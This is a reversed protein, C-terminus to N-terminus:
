TTKPMWPYEKVYAELCTYWHRPTFGPILSNVLVESTPRPADYEKEFFSSLVGHVKVDCRLLQIFKKAIDFRSASGVCSIHYTGLMKRNLLQELGLCLDPLYSMSGFKDSVAKIDKSGAAIQKYVKGVFKTDNEPGGGFCWETRVICHKPLSRVVNEAMWKTKGYTSVPNKVDDTRYTPQSGDFVCASSLYVCEAGVVDSALASNAAGLVHTKLALAPNAECKEMDCIASFNVVYEPQFKKIDTLLADYDTVDVRPVRVGPLALEHAGDFHQIFAKGLMGSGGLVYIKM